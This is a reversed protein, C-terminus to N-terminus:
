SNMLDTFLLYNQIFARYKLIIKCVPSIALIVLPSYLPLISCAVFLAPGPAQRRARSGRARALYNRNRNSEVPSVPFRFCLPKIFSFSPRAYPRNRQFKDESPSVLQTVAEHYCLMVQQSEVKMRSHFHNDTSEVAVGGWRLHVGILISIIL